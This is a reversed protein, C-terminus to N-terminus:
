NRKYTKDSKIEDYPVTLVNNGDRYVVVKDLVKCRIAKRQHRTLKWEVNFPKLCRDCTYLRGSCVAMSIHYDLSQQSSVSKKCYICEFKESTSSKSIISDDDDDHNGGGCVDITIINNKMMINVYDFNFRASNHM